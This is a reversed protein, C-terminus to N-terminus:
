KMTFLKVNYFFQRGNLTQCEVTITDRLNQENGSPGYRPAGLSSSPEQEPDPETEEDPPNEM